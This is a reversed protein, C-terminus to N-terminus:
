GKIAKKHKTGSFIIGMEYLFMIPVALAVQTFVDPPTLVAAVIFIVVVAYRRGTKLADKEVIGLATVMRMVLPLQFTVGFVLLILFVFSIYKGVSIMPNVSEGGFNLLFNLGLPLVVMYGFSVGGLFLVLAFPVYKFIFKKETNKLAAGVFSWVQYIIFPSSVIIGALFSVKLSVLFAEQPSIFILDRNLPQKLFELISAHFIFLVATTILVAAASYLVRLRFEELHSIFPQKTNSM